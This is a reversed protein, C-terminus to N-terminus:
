THKQEAYEYEHNYSTDGLKQNMAMGTKDTTVGANIHGSM